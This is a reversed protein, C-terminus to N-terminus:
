AVLGLDGERMGGAGLGIGGRFWMGGAGELSCGIMM